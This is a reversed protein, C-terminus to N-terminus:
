RVRSHRSFGTYPLNGMSKFVRHNSNTGRVAYRHHLEGSGGQDFPHHSRSGVRLLPKKKPTEKRWTKPAPFPVGVEHGFPALRYEVEALNSAIQAYHNFLQFAGNKKLGLFSSRSVFKPKFQCALSKRSSVNLGSTPLTASMTSDRWFPGKHIEMNVQNPSASVLDIIMQVSLPRLIIGILSSIGMLTRTFCDRGFGLSVQMGPYAFFIAFADVLM